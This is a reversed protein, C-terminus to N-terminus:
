WLTNNSYMGWGMLMAPLCLRWIRRGSHPTEGVGIIVIGESSSGLFKLFPLNTSEQHYPFKVLFFWLCTLINAKHNISDM